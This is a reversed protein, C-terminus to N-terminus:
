VGKDLHKLFPGLQKSHLLACTMIVIVQPQEKVQCLTGFDKKTKFAM